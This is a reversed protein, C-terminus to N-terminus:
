AVEALLYNTVYSGASLIEKNDSLIFNSKYFLEYGRKCVDGGKAILAFCDRNAAFFEGVLNNEEVVIEQSYYLSLGRTRVEDNNTFRVLQPIEVPLNIGLGTITEKRCYLEVELENEFLFTFSKGINDETINKLNKFLNKSNAPIFNELLSKTIIM